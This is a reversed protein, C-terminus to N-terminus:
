LWEPTRKLAPFAAPPAMHPGRKNGYFWLQNRSQLGTHMRGGCFHLGTKPANLATQCVPLTRSRGQQHAFCSM